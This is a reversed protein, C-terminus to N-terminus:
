ESLGLAARYRPYLRQLHSGDATFFEGPEIDIWSTDHTSPPDLARLHHAAETIAAVAPKPTADARWLGFSREHVAEDLPPDAWIDSVYDSDCWVMAGTAGARHVARIARDLYSAATAEDVLM